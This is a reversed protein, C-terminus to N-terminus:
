KTPPNVVEVLMPKPPEPPPKPPNVLGLKIAEDKNNPDDLFKLLKTPDNNFRDRLESPLDDFMTKARAVINLAEIYSPADALNMYKGDERVVVGAVIGDKRMARKYINRIDHSEGDQVTLGDAPFVIAVRKRKPSRFGM